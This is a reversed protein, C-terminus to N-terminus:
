YFGFAPYHRKPSLSVRYLHKSKHPRFTRFFSAYMALKKGVERSNLVNKIHFFNYCSKSKNKKTYNYRMCLICGQVCFLKVQIIAKSNFTIVGHSIKRQTFRNLATFINSQKVLAYGIM